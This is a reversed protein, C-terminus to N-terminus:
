KQSVEEIWGRTMKAANIWEPNDPAKGALAEIVLLAKQYQELAEKRANQAKLTHGAKATANWINFQWEAGAGDGAGARGAIELAAKYEDLAKAPEDGGLLLDGLLLRTAFVDRMRANGKPNEALLMEFVSLAEGVAAAAQGPKNAAVAINGIDRHIRGLQLKWSFNTKDLAVLEQRITLAKGYYGLAEDFRKKAFLAGGLNRYGNALQSRWLASSPDKAALRQRYQLSLEHEHLAADLDGLLALANAIKEHNDSINSLIVQNDPSVKEIRERIVLAERYKQLAIKPDGSAHGIRTLTSALDRQIDANSPLKEQIAAYISLSKNYYVLANQLDPAVFLTDGIKNGIFALNAQWSMDDPAAAARIEAVYLAEKYYQLGTAQKSQLTLADAIRFLADYKSAQWAKDGPAATLVQQVISLAKQAAELSKATDGLNSHVDSFLILLKVISQQIDTTHSLQLQANISTEATSLLEKTVASSVTSEDLYTRIRAILENTANLALITAREARAAQQHADRWKLAALGAFLSITIFAAAAAIGRWRKQSTELGISTKVYRREEVSLDQPRQLLWERARALKNGALLAGTKKGAPANLWERVDEELQDKGALFEREKELEGNLIEWVRFLAEHAAEFTDTERGDLFRRDKVILRSKSLHDLLAASAAPLEDRAAVRRVFQGAANTRVLHPIFASAISARRAKPDSPVHGTQMGSNLAEEVAASLAGHVRGLREYQSLTLEGDAAYNEYLRELTFALLPLADQGSLDELLAHTLEPDIRLPRPKALRAPGEIVERYAGELMTDLPFVEKRMAAMVPDGMLQPFADSRIAMLVVLHPITDLARALLKLFLQAEERGDGGFLEEGQDISLIITPTHLAEDSLVPPRGAEQIAALMTELGADETKLYTAIDARARPLGAKKLSGAFPEARMLDQLSSALGSGGTIAGREPRIVRLPLWVRDDRKLRPWLGARLFSSKGAGSAGAVILTQVAGARAMGRIKDLGRVIEAERGFFIAADNEDLPALGPYLRRGAPFPFSAPDLGAQNLGIKLKLFGEPDSVLDVCQEERLDGLVEPAIPAILAAIIKKNLLRANDIEAKCHVSALWEPSVLALVVECRYAAKQLAARWREGAKIGREPDLDLFFDPWGNEELWNKIRLVWDTNKSSHSIFIRAM